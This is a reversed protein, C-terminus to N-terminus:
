RRFSKRLSIDRAPLPPPTKFEDNKTGRPGESFHSKFYDFYSSLVNKIDSIDKNLKVIQDSTTVNEAQM